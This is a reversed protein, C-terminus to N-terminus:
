GGLRGFESSDGGPPLSRSDRRLSSRIKDTDDAILKLLRDSALSLSNILGPITVSSSSSATGSKSQIDLLIVGHAALVTNIASLSAAGASCCQYVTLLLNYVDELTPGEGVEKTPSFYFVHRKRPRWYRWRYVGTAM